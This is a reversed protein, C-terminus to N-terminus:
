RPDRHWGPGERASSSRISHFHGQGAGAQPPLTHHQLGMWPMAFAWRVSDGRDRAATLGSRSWSSSCVGHGVVVLDASLGQGHPTTLGAAAEPLARRLHRHDVAYGEPVVVDVVPLRDRELLLGAVDVTSVAVRRHADELLLQTQELAGLGRGGEGRAHGGNAVREEGADLWAVPDHRDLVAVAAGALEKELEQRAPLDLDREALGGIVPLDLGLQSPAAPQEVQLRGGVGGELDDVDLPQGRDGVVGARDHHDVVGQGGRDVLLGQREPRVQDDV